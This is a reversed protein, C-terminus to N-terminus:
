CPAATSSGAPPQSLTDHLAALVNPHLGLRSLLLRVVDKGLPTITAKPTARQLGISPNSEIGMSVTRLIGLEFLRPYRIANMLNVDIAFSEGTLPVSGLFDMSGPDLAEACRKVYDSKMQDVSRLRDAALTHLMAKADAVCTPDYSFARFQTLDFISPDNDSRVVLVEDPMRMTHAIGLEWMVNGNRQPRNAGLADRMKTSTIDALVLRAHAIGDIMDHVISEGSLNYDVRNAKLGLGERVTPEIVEIWRDQFEDAFSMIVFVEDRKEHTFLTSYFTHPHM